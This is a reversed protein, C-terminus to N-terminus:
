ASLRATPGRACRLARGARWELLQRVAGSSSQAAESLGIDLRLLVPTSSFAYYYSETVIGASTLDCHWSWEDVASLSAGQGSRSERCSTGAKYPASWAVSDLQQLMRSAIAEANQVQAFLPFVALWLTM